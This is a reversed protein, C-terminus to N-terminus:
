GLRDLFAKYDRYFAISDPHGCYATTGPQNMMGEYQYVLVEDCYPSVAELQKELRAMHSPILASHYTDGEFGFIEVDAWLAARGARDHARRLGEFYAGTQDPTSKRVGVEDQYAMFDVDLGELQAVYADDPTIQNTGYPAILTRLNKNLSRGFATYRNVYQIFHPEMHGYIGTEDPYYWGYFSDYHGYKAYVEEMAQFARKEVEPSTMNEVPHNWAGYYGVPVFVKMGCQAAEDMLAKMPDECAFDRAFPYIDTKFYAEAIESNVLSTCLLVIYRMGLSHMERVKARWQAETFARCIPNWYKGEAQNHHQFEFWSGSIPKIM